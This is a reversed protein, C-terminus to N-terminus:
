VPHTFYPSVAHYKTIAIFSMKNGFCVRYTLTLVTAGIDLESKIAECFCVEIFIKMSTVQDAKTRSRKRINDFMQLFAIGIMHAYLKFIDTILFFNIPQCSFDFLFKELGNGQFFLFPYQLFEVLADDEFFKQM